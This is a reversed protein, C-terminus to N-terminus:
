YGYVQRCSNAADTVPGGDIFGDDVQDPVNPKFFALFARHGVYNGFKNKADVTGCLFWGSQRPGFFVLSGQVPKRFVYRASPADLLKAAFYRTVAKEAAEPSSPAIAQVARAQGETSPSPGACGCVFALLMCAILRQWDM